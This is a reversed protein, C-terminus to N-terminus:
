WSVVNAPMVPQQRQQQGQKLKRIEKLAWSSL